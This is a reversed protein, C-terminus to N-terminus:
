LNLTIGILNRMVNKVSSSCIIRLNVHFWLLGLIALAIKLFFFVLALPEQKVERVECLVAFSYYGFCCLILVFVPM